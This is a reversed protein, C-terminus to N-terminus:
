VGVTAVRTRWDSAFLLLALVALPPLMWLVAREGSTAAVLGLLAGGVSVGGDFAMNWLTSVLPVESREAGVLMGVFAGSQALGGGAGYLLGAAVVLGAQAGLTLLLLGLVALAMGPLIVSRYGWRDAARGGVWRAAARGGGYVFFFSAASGWGVPELLHPGFSVLGGYTMTLLALALVPVLLSRRRLGHAVQVTRRTPRPRGRDVGDVNLVVGLLAVVGALGFVASPGLSGLLLLGLSPAVMSAVGIALGLNGVARGRATPAALEAVLVAGTVVASGFGLGRIIALGLMGGVSGGLGLQALSGGGILLLAAAFLRGPRYRSLLSPMLLEAGVTAGSFLATVLGGDAAHGSATQVVVPAVTMLAAVNLFTCIAALLTRLV